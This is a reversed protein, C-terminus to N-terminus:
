GIAHPTFRGAKGKGAIKGARTDAPFYFCLEMTCIPGGKRHSKEKARVEQGAKRGACRGTDEVPKWTDAPLFLSGAGEKGQYREPQRDPDSGPRRVRLALSFCM